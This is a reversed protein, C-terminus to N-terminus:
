GYCEIRVAGSESSVFKPKRNVKVLCHVVDGVQFDHFDQMMLGCETGRGVTDVDREQRRLSACCGEYVVEGSRLVRLTSAKTVRGDMVKCGAIKLDKGKAEGKGKVQFINLVHAEGAVQTEMTGPAKEVIFNGVDELLHYIM